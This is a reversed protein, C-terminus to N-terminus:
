SADVPALDQQSKRILDAEIGGDLLALGTVM